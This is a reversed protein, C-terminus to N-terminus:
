NKDPVVLDTLKGTQNPHNGLVRLGDGCLIDSALMPRYIDSSAFENNNFLRDGRLLVHHDIM